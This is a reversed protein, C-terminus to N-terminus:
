FLSSLRSPICFWLVRHATGARLGATLLGHGHALTSPESCEKVPGGTVMPGSSSNGPTLPVPQPWRQGEGSHPIPTGAWAPTSLGMRSGWAARQSPGCWQCHRAPQPSPLKHRAECPLVAWLLTSHRQQRADAWLRRHMASAYPIGPWLCGDARRAREPLLRSTVSVGSCHLQHTPFHRMAM